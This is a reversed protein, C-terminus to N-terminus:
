ESKLIPTGRQAIRGGIYIRPESMERIVLPPNNEQGVVNDWLEDSDYREGSLDRYSTEQKALLDKLPAMMRKLKKEEGTMQFRLRKEIRWVERAIDRLLKSSDQEQGGRGNALGELLTKLEGLADASAVDGLDPIRLAKPYRLQKLSEFAM